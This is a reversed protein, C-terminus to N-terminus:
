GNWAEEDNTFRRLREELVEIYTELEAIKRDRTKIGSIAFATAEILDNEIEGADFKLRRYFDTRQM